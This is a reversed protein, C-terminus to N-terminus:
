STVTDGVAAAVHNCIHRLAHFHVGTMVMVFGTQGQVFNEYHATITYPM